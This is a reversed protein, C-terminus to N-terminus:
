RPFIRYAHDVDKYLMPRIMKAAYTSWEETEGMRDILCARINSGRFRLFARLKDRRWQGWSNKVSEAKLRDFNLQDGTKPIAMLFDAKSEFREQLSPDILLVGHHHYEEQGFTEYPLAHNRHRSGPRDLFLLLLFKQIHSWRHWNPSITKSFFRPLPKISLDLQYCRTAM